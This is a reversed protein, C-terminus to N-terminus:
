ETWTLGLLVLDHRPGSDPDDRDVPTHVATSLSTSLTSTLKRTGILTTGASQDWEQHAAISTKESIPYVLSLITREIHGPGFGDSMQMSLKTDVDYPNDMRIDLFNGSYSYKIHMKYGKRVQVNVNSIRDKLEYIPRIDPNSKAYQDAHHETLRRLMYNAFKMQNKEHAEVTEQKGSPYDYLAFQNNTNYIREADTRGFKEEYRTQFERSLKADFIPRGMIMSATAPPPPPPVLVFEEETLNREKAVSQLYGPRGGVPIATKASALAGCLSLFTIAWFRM